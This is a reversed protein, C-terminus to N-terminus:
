CITTGEKRSDERKSSCPGCSIAPVTPCISISELTRYMTDVRENPEYYNEYNGTAMEILGRLIAMFNLKRQLLKEEDNVSGGSEILIVSTGEVTFSDGFYKRGFDDGYRGVQEPIAEQLMRNIGTIVSMANARTQNITRRHKQLLEEYSGTVNGPGGDIAPSLLSLIALKGTGRGAATYENQDHLNFGFKVPVNDPHVENRVKWLVKAEVPDPLKDYRWWFEIPNLILIVPM